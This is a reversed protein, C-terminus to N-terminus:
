DGDKELAKAQAADLEAFTDILATLSDAVGELSAQLADRSIDWSDSFENVKAALGGHGVLGAIDESVRDARAFIRAADDIDTRSRGLEAFDLNLDSM